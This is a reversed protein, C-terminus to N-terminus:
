RVSIMLVNSLNIVEGRKPNGDEPIALFKGDGKLNQVPVMKALKIKTTSHDVWEIRLIGQDKLPAELEKIVGELGRITSHVGDLEAKGDRLALRYARAGRSRPHDKIQKRLREETAKM